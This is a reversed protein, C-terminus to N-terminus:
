KTKPCYLTMHIKDYTVVLDGKPSFLAGRNAAKRTEDSNATKVPTSGLHLCIGLEAALDAGAKFVPDTEQLTITELLLKPNKQLLGTMEPTQVYQAGKAAAERVTAQMQRINAEPSVGSRMQVCAARLIAM